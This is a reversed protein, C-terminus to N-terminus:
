VGVKAKVTALEAKLEHIAACLMGIVASTYVDDKSRVGESDVAFCEDPLGDAEFGMMAGSYDGAKVFANSSEHKRQFCIGKPVKIEKTEIDRINEKTRRVSTQITGNAAWVATFRNGTKGLSYTNDTIPVVTSNSGVFGLWNAGGVSLRLDSAGASFFGSTTDGTFTLTPAGASGAPVTVVSGFTKAGNITQTGESMIFNAAAGADQISYVRSAAPAVASITVTNTVGLVLQNTTPNIIVGSTFTKAGAITQAGASMVFDAAGGADPLTYARSAALAAVNITIVDTSSVEQLLLTQDAFTKAGTITQAGASMLFSAAGGADPMTYARSAALAAVNITIVDTSGTEQLLLTQDAFTKAGTITQAGLSMIFAAAGGADPITYVRSAAPAVSNITTTNTTGMVIQNTTNTLTINTFSGAAGAAALVAGNFTLQDSANVALALNANNLNNRWAVVDAVALRVIGTSAINATRSKYYISVLGFNAGFNADALLTFAGGSLTLSGTALAVLYSSLNGAGQAYGSDGYAPVSYANGVYTIPTSM